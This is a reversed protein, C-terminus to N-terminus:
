APNGKTATFQVYRAVLDPPPLGTPPCRLGNTYAWRRIVKCGLEVVVLVAKPQTFEAAAPPDPRPLPPRGGKAPRIPVGAANLANAVTQGTCGFRRGVEAMTLGTRYAEAIAAHDYKRGTKPQRLSPPRDGEVLGLQRMHKEATQRSIRLHSAIWGANRFLGHEYAHAVEAAIDRRGKTQGGGGAAADSPPRQDPAPEPPKVPRPAPLRAPKAPKRPARPKPAQSEAILAREAAPELPQLRIPSQIPRRARELDSHIDRGSKTAFGEFGPDNVRTVAQGTNGYNKM